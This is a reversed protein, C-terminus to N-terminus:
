AGYVTNCDNAKGWLCLELIERLKRQAYEHFRIDPDLAKTAIRAIMDDIKAEFTGGEIDFRLVRGIIYMANDNNMEVNFIPNYKPNPLPEENDDKWIHEDMGEIFGEPLQHDEGTVFKSVYLNMGM